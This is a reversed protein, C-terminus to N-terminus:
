SKDSIDVLTDEIGDCQEFYSERRDLGGAGTGLGTM